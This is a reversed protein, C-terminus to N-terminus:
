KGGAPYVLANDDLFVEGAMLSDVFIDSTYKATLYSVPLPGRKKLERIM